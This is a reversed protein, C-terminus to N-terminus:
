GPNKKREIERRSRSVSIVANLVYNSLDYGPLHDASQMMPSGCQHNDDHHEMHRLDKKEAGVLLRPFGRPVYPDNQQQQSEAETQCTVQQWPVVARVPPSYHRSLDRTADWNKSRINLAQHPGLIADADNRKGPEVPQM